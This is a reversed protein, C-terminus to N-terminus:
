AAVQEDVERAIVCRDGPPSHATSFEYDSRRNRGTAFPCGGAVGLFSAVSPLDRELLFRRRLLCM